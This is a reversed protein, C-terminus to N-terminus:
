LTGGIQALLRLQVSELNEEVDLGAYMKWFTGFVRLYAVRNSELLYPFLATPKTGATPVPASFLLGSGIGDTYQVGVGVDLYTRLFSLGASYIVRRHLRNELRNLDVGVSGVFGLGKWLDDARVSAVVRHELDTNERYRLRYRAELRIARYARANFLFSHDQFSGSAVEVPTGDAKTVLLESQILRLREYNLNYSLRVRTHPRYDITGYAGVAGLTATGLTVPGSPNGADFRVDYRTGLSFGATIGLKRHAFVTVVGDLFYEDEVHRELLEGRRVLRGAMPLDIADRAWSFSLQANILRHNVWLSTGVVPLIVSQGEGIVAWTDRRGTTFARLGGWASQGFVRTYKADVKVGDVILWFGGPTRMRGLSIKLRDGLLHVSGSLEIVQNRYSNGIFGERGQFDLKFDWRSAANRLDIRAVIGLETNVPRAGIGDPATTLLLDVGTLVRLDYARAMRVRSTLVVLGIVLAM